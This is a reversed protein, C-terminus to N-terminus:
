NENEWRKFFEKCGIFEWKPNPNTGRIYTNVLCKREKYTKGDFKFTRYTTDAATLHGKLLIDFYGNTKTKKVQKPLETIDAFDTSFLLKKYKNGKKAFVWFACNGVGGCLNPSTKGRVLIEKQGDNNLDFQKIELLDSCDYIEHSTSDWERFNEAKIVEKWVRLIRKDKCTPKDSKKTLTEQDQSSDTYQVFSKRFDPQSLYNNFSVTNTPTHLKERYNWYLNLAIFSGTGFTLLAIFIYFSYRRM